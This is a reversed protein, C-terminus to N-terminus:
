DPQRVPYPLSQLQLAPGSDAGLRLGDPQEALAIKLEALAEWGGDHAAPAANVIQGCPQGPDTTHFIEQGPTMEAPGSLRYMRRKLTGRYQSRAIVEQGPFCGKKFDVGGLIEFNIMQPVFQQQTAATIHPLGARLDQLAWDGAPLAPLAALAAALAASGAVDRYLLVLGRNSGDAQPLRILAGANNVAPCVGWDADPWRLESQEPLTCAADGLLGIRGVTETVDELTCRLRLVFMRLRKLVSDAVSADLLLLIDEASRRVMWLDAFMRGQPSCLAALRATGGDWHQADQSLQAQLLDAAQPGSVRIVALSEVPLSSCQM